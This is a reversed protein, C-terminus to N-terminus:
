FLSLDIGVYMLEKWRYCVAKDPCWVPIFGSTGAVSPVVVVVVFYFDM